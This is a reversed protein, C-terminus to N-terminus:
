LARGFETFGVLARVFITWSNFEGVPRPVQLGLVGYRDSIVGGLSTGDRQFIDDFQKRDRTLGVITYLNYGFYSSRNILNVFATRRKFSQREHVKDKFRYPLPGLGQFGLQLLTRSMLPYELRLIPITSIESTLARSKYTGDTQRDAELDVLRFLMFKFQPQVKLTGWHWIYEARSVATWLDLRRARQKDDGPLAGGQQWNLRLRLKNVLHLAPWPTLMSELYTENVYSNRYALLDKRSQNFFGISNIELGGDGAGVQATRPKEVLENFADPIDDQVRRLHNEFFIRQIRGVGTRQYNLLAYTSKNRGAGAVQNVDHRGVSVSWNKSLDLQGFVHAGRQDLDYPLDIDWDDERLDVEDNNNRDLGYVYKNPEVDYMLFPEEYDPLDNFNRNTDPIGDNDEDHGPFTGNPDVSEQDRGASLNEGLPADVFRDRDDNDQVLRWYVTQNTLGALDGYSFAMDRKLYSRIETTYGPNMSFYEAGVRGRGFWRLISLNYAADHKAFRPADVFRREGQVHSPYRSYLSSRAYEGNVEFGAIAFQADTGYVFLATDEGIKFRVRKLNSLDQINGKARVTTRYFTSKFQTQVNRARSNALWLTAVDVRYDNGMLAEVAVSEVFPEQSIDFLYILVEDSDTRLIEDPSELVINALLEELNTDGSVDEGNEHKVRYIYDAFLPMERDRYFVGGNFDNLPRPRNYLVPNFEGTSRSAKGVYHGAGDRHRLVQPQLEPRTQGNVILQMEQVVPGKPGDGPSDDTIRLVILDFVPNNPRVRGKLSNGPQTSQYLHMNVGNLGLRLAGIQAEARTGLLMTNDDAIFHGDIIWPASDKSLTSAQRELRSMITTIKLNPRYFDFRFGNLNVKALTMPTFYAKMGDGLIASYGWKGYGDRGVMVQDFVPRFTHMHKFMDSGFEQNPMRTERWNYIEYGTILHNGLSGYFSRPQDTYPHSHNPYNTFNNFAFNRYAPLQRQFFPYAPEVKSLALDLNEEQGGETVSWSLTM